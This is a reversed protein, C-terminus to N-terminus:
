LCRVWEPDSAYQVKPRKFRNAAQIECENDEQCSQNRPTKCKRIDSAPETEKNCSKHFGEYLCETERREHDTCPCLALSLGEFVKNMEPPQATPLQLLVALSQFTPRPRKPSNCKKGIYVLTERMWLACRKSVWRRWKRWLVVTCRWRGKEMRVKKVKERRM